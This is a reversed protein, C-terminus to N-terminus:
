KKRGNDSVKLRWLRWMRREGGSDLWVVKISIVPEGAGQFEVRFELVAACLVVGGYERM